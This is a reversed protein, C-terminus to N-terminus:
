ATVIFYTKKGVFSPYYLWQGANLTLTVKRAGTFALGTLTPPAQKIARVTLYTRDGQERM